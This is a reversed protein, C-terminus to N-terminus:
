NLVAIINRDDMRYVARELRESLSLKRKQPSFDSDDVVVASLRNGRAFGPKDGFYVHGATTALYYAEAVTLADVLYNDSMRLFKSATITAAMVRYMEIDSGGAIDSGLTINVGEDLMHRVRATGSMINYNSSACHVVTVNHDRIAKIEEEDSHVCHAMLTHDKFLGYKDYTEWYRMCDPHLERVWRIESVNESLHSQVYLNREESLKGLWELLENTCSPTFRPTLIPKIDKFDSCMELWRLTERKSEETTEELNEGGNRDMNVKGVYGRIGVKELEEMLILTSDTHLSSFMSVHTTGNKILVSALKSYIKRAYETDSFEAETPFTYTKLWDLLFRDMGMGIMPFQPAHLHMDCFSQLVLADGYDEIQGSFGAPISSLVDVIIGDDDTIICGNELTNLKGIEKAEIINGKILRMNEGKKGMTPKLAARLSKRAMSFPIIHSM